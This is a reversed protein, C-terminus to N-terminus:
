LKLEKGEIELELKWENENINTLKIGLDLPFPPFNVEKELYNQTKKLIKENFRFDKGNLNSFDSYLILKSEPNSYNFKIILKKELGLFSIKNLDNLNEKKYVRKGKNFIKDLLIYEDLIKLPDYNKPEYDRSSRCEIKKYIKGKKYYLKQFYVKSKNGKTNYFELMGNIINSYFYSINQTDHSKVKFIEKKILILEKEFYYSCYHVHNDHLTFTTIIKKLTKTDEDIYLTIYNKSERSFLKYSSNILSFKDNKIKNEINKIIEDTKKWYKSERKKISKANISFISISLFLLINRISNM